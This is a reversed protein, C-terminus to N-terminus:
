NVRNYCKKDVYTRVASCDFQAAFESHYANSHLPLKACAHDGVNGCPQLLRGAVYKEVEAILMKVSTM